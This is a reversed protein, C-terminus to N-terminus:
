LERVLLRPITDLLRRQIKGVGADRPIRDVQILLTPRMYRPLDAVAVRIDEAEVDAAVTYVVAEHGRSASPIRWLAFDGLTPVQRLREEVFDIPVYEANVRISESIREIFVLNGCDDLRGRDGTHFWGGPGLAPEVVGGRRYGSFLVQPVKERVLIEGADSLMVEMDHRPQGAQHLAGEPPLGADDKRFTWHHCLGGAETSGYGGIGIPIDFQALFAPNCSFGVRVSHGQADQATTKTRLLNAPPAHLILATAGHGKVQAWFDTPSFRETSLFGARGTLAGVVGNGIPNIHFLPLPNVVVDHRTFGMIDAFFRGLRHFYGHSLACFKPNGSTGSTHLFAAVEDPRCHEGASGEAPTLPGDQWQVVSGDWADGADFQPLPRGAAEGPARGIWAIADPALDDLMQALFADPYSPNILATQVGLLQAAMWTVIYSASNTGIVALVKGRGLGASRFQEAVQRARDVVRPLADSQQFTGFRAAPNEAAATTILQALNSM